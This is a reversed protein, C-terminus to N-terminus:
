EININQLLDKKSIVFGSEVWKKELSKLKKGLPVGPKFGLAILDQGCVPMQPVVWNEALDIIQEYYAVELLSQEGNYEPAEEIVRARAKLLSLKLHDLTAQAGNTYIIKKVANDAEHAKIPPLLAWKVLRRKEHNALKLRKALTLVYQSNPPIIAQLRLLPDISWHFHQECAILPHIADIGWKESEPLITTLVGSQRMWLLARTPDEASLIKKFEEWVREASLKKLGDKLKAAAKIGERDPRGKGYFAFFRFFRLIRLYDEQIRDEAKGIFRVTATKIDALGDIDDYVTGKDDCYLANITFDRRNADMQWDKGFVVKPHRGNSTIDERLTTVEFPHHDVIITMTGFAEGTAVVHFGAAKALRKTEHPLHTTAIDIDHIPRHMLSNRVAGGVIRAQGNQSGLVTLLKQLREDFLWQANDFTLKM